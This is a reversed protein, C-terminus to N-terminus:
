ARWEWSTAVFSSLLKALEPAGFQEDLLLAANEERGATNWWVLGTCRKGVTSRNLWEAERRITAARQQQATWGAALIGREGLMYTGDQIVLDLLRKFGPHQPLIADVPTNAGSYVSPAIVDCLEAARRWVEAEGARTSAGRHMNPGGGIQWQYGMPAYVLQIGDWSGKLPGKVADVLELYQQATMDNEPEHWIVLYRARPGCSRMREALKALPGDWRGALVQSHDLKISVLPTMGADLSPKAVKEYAAIIAEPRPDTLEGKPGPGKIFERTLTIGPFAAKVQAPSRDDHVGCARPGAQVAVGTSAPAIVPTTTTTDLPKPGTDPPTGPSAVQEITISVVDGRAPDDPRYTYTTTVELQGGATPWANTITKPRNPELRLERNVPVNPANM